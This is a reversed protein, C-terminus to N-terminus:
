TAAAHLSSRMEAVIEETRGVDGAAIADAVQGFYLRVETYGGPGTPSDPLGNTTLDGLVEFMGTLVPNAALQEVRTTFHAAARLVQAHEDIGDIPQYAHVADAMTRRAASDPHEAASRFLETSLAMLVDVLHVFSAGRHRLLLSFSRAVAEVSPVRAFMGGNLGRRVTVLGEAQLIRVAQRFTPRSVGFRVLLEDESGIAEGDTLTTLISERLEDAILM